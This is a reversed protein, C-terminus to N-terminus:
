AAAGLPVAGSIVVFARIARCARSWRSFTNEACIWSARDLVACRKRVCRRGGCSGDPDDGHATCGLVGTSPGFVAYRLAQSEKSVGCGQGVKPGDCGGVGAVTAAATPSLGSELAKWFEERVAAVVEVALKVGHGRFAM